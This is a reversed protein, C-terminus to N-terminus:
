ELSGGTIVTGVLAFGPGAEQQTQNRLSPTVVHPSCPSPLLVLGLPCDHALPFVGPRWPRWRPSPLLWHWPGEEGWGERSRSAGWTEPPPFQDM